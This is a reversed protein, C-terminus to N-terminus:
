HKCDGTHTHTSKKTVRRARVWMLLPALMPLIFPLNTLTDHIPNGCCHM